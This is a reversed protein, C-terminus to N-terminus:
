KVFLSRKKTVSFNGVLLRRKLIQAKAVEEQIFTDEQQGFRNIIEEYIASAEEKRNNLSYIEAKEFFAEVVYKQLVHNKTNGFKNVIEEYASLAKGYRFLKAFFAGKEILAKAM